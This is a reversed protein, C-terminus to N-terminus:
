HSANTTGMEKLLAARAAAQAATDQPSPTEPIVHVSGDSGVEVNLDYPTAPRLSSKTAASPPSGSPLTRRMLLEGGKPQRDPNNGANMWQLRRAEFLETRLKSLQSRV